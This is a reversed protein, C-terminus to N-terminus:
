NFLNSKSCFFYELVYRVPKCINYDLKIYRVYCRFITGGIYKEESFSRFLKYEFAFVLM